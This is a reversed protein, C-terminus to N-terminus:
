LCVFLRLSLTLSLFYYVGLLRPTLLTLSLFYYVGISPASDVFLCVLRYAILSRAQRLHQQRPLLSRGRQEDGSTTGFMDPRDPMCSSEHAINDFFLGFKTAMAVPESGCCQVHNWQIPWGWFGGLLRLCRWDTHWVLRTITSKQDFKPFDNKPTLPGLDFISSCSKTSPTM